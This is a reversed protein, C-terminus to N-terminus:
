REALEKLAVNMSNLLPPASIEIETKIEQMKSGEITLYTVGIFTLAIFIILIKKM